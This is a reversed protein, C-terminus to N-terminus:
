PQPMGENFAQWSQGSAWMQKYFQIQSTSRSRSVPTKRSIIHVHAQACAGAGMSKTGAGMSKAGACMSKAGQHM